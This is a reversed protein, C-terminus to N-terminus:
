IDRLWSRLEREVVDPCELAVMHAADAVRILDAHRCGCEVAAAMARMGTTDEDGVLVRVPCAIESLRGAAPPELVAFDPAERQQAYNLRSMEAVSHRLAERRQEPGRNPGDVLLRAENAVIEDVLWADDAAEIANLLAREDESVPPDFGSVDPAVLFMGRVRDPHTLTFDVAIRAGRSAGILVTSKLGYDDLVSTLDAVDSYSGQTSTKSRGFCRCDYAITFWEHRLARMLPIWMDSHTIGTHVMVISPYEPNEGSRAFM